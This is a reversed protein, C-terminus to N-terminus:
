KADLMKKRVKAVTEQMKVPLPFLEELDLEEDEGAEVDPTQQVRDEDLAFNNAFYELTGRRKAEIWQTEFYWQQELPMKWDEGLIGKLLPTKEIYAKCRNAYEFVADQPQWKKPIPFKRLWDAQPYIDTCLFWPIFVPCLRSQGKPWYTKSYQWLNDFWGFEKNKNGHLVLFSNRSSHITRLLGEEITKMPNPLMNIKSVYVCQPTLGQAIGNTMMGSAFSIQSNNNIKRSTQRIPALWWPLNNYVTNLFQSYFEDKENFISSVIANTNPVFMIRHVIKLLVKTGVGTQRSGLILLEIGFDRDELEAIIKDLVEQSKRNQFKTIVGHESVIYAYRSEFYGSDISCLAQENEIWHVIYERKTKSLKVGEKLIVWSNKSNSEITVLSNIYEKFEDIQELSHHQPTWGESETFADITAQIKKQSYM